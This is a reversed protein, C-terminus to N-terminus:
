ISVATNGISRISEVLKEKIFVLAKIQNQLEQLKELKM